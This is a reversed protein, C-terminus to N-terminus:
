CSGLPQPLNKARSGKSGTRRVMMEGLTANSLHISLKGPQVDAPIFILFHLNLWAVIGYAYTDSDLLCILDFMNKDVFESPEESLSRFREENQAPLRHLSIVDTEENRVEVRFFHKGVLKNIEHDLEHFLHVLLNRFHLKEYTHPHM